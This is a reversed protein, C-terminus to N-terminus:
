PLVSLRTPQVELTAFIRYTKASSLLNSGFTASRRAEVTLLAVIRCNAFALQVKDLSKIQLHGTFTKGCGISKPLTRPKVPERDIGRAMELLTRGEDEGFLRQM